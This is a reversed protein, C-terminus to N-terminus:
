SDLELAAMRAELTVFADFGSKEAEPRPITVTIVLFEDATGGDSKDGFWTMRPLLMTADGAWRGSRKPPTFAVALKLRDLLGVERPVRPELTMMSTGDLPGLTMVPAALPALMAM